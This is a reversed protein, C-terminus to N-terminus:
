AHINEEKDVFTFSFEFSKTAHSIGLASTFSFMLFESCFFFPELAVNKFRLWLAFFHPLLGIQGIAM